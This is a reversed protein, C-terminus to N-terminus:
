YDPGRAFMAFTLSYRDTPWAAAWWRHSRWCAAGNGAFDNIVLLRSEPVALSLTRYSMPLTPRATMRDYM